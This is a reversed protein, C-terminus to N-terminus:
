IEVVKATEDPKLIADQSKNQPESRRPKRDTKPKFNPTWPGLSDYAYFDMPYDPKWDILKLAVNLEYPTLLPRQFATGWDISLRPCAIQVWADVSSMLSLKAPFIESMLVVVFEKGAKTLKDQM